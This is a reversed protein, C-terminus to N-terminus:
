SEWPSEEQNFPVKITPATPDPRSEYMQLYVCSVLRSGLFRHEVAAAGAFAPGSPGVAGAILFAIVLLSTQLRIRIRNM